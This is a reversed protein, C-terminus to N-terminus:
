ALRVKAFAFAAGSLVFVSAALGFVAAMGFQLCGLSATLVTVLSASLLFQKRIARESLSMKVLVGGAILGSFVCVLTEINFRCCFGLAELTIPIALAGLGVVLGRYVGREYDQGRWAFLVTALFLAACIFYGSRPVECVASTLVVLPLLFWLTNFGARLRGLEYALKSRKKLNDSANTM